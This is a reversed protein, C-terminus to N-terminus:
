NGYRSSNKDRIMARTIKLGYLSLFIATKLILNSQWSVNHTFPTQARTNKEHVRITHSKNLASIISLILMMLKDRFFSISFINYKPTFGRNNNQCLDNNICM